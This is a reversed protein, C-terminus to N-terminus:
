CSYAQIRLQTTNLREEAIKVYQDSLEIGNNLAEIQQQYLFAM